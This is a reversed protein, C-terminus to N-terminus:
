QPVEDNAYEYVVENHELVLTSWVVMSWRKVSLHTKDLFSYSRRNLARTSFFM